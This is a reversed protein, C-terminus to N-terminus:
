DKLIGKVKEARQIMSPFMTKLNSKTVQTNRSFPINLLQLITLTTSDDLGWWELALACKPVWVSKRCGSELSHTCDALTCDLTDRKQITFHIFKWDTLEWPREEQPQKGKCYWLVALIDCWIIAEMTSDFYSRVAVSNLLTKFVTTYSLSLRSSSIEQTLCMNIAEIYSSLAFPDHQAMNVLEEVYDQKKSPDKNYIEALLSIPYPDPTGRACKLLRDKVFKPTTGVMISAEHLFYLHLDSFLSEKQWVEEVVKVQEKDHSGGKRLNVAIAKVPQLFYTKFPQLPYVDDVVRLLKGPDNAYREKVLKIAADIADEPLKPKTPMVDTAVAAATTATATANEGAGAEAPSDVPAPREDVSAAAEAGADADAVPLPVDLRAKSRSRSKYSRPASRPESELVPTSLRFSPSPRHSSPENPEGNAAHWETDYDM